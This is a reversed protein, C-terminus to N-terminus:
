VELGQAERAFHAQIRQRWVEFAPLDGDPPLDQLADEPIVAAVSAPLGCLTRCALDTSDAPNGARQRAKAAFAAGQAMQAVHSGAAQRLTEIRERDLGGAYACALGVGSWLDGHREPAFRCIAETIAAVDAGGVFWLSRGLGQDFVRLAYGCLRRPVTQTDLYERPHFYGQHFGYGDVVLWGLLPDLTALVRETRRRFRALAWGAGVHVMYIHPAGAGALFRKLYRRRGFSVIDRLALGMGAGEYAFGRRELDIRDLDVALPTLDDHELAIHYGELFTRGIQELRQRTQPLKVHFGRREVDVQTESVALVTRLLHGM